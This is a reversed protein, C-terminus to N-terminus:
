ISSSLIHTSKIKLLRDMSVIASGLALVILVPIFKEYTKIALLIKKSRGTEHTTKNVKYLKGSPHIFKALEEIQDAPTWNDSDQPRILTNSSLRISKIKDITYPGSEEQGNLVFYNKM